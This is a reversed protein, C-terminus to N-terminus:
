PQPAESMQKKIVEPSPPVRLVEDALSPVKSPFSLPPGDDDDSSSSSSIDVLLNHTRTQTSLVSPEFSGLHNKSSHLLRKDRLTGRRLTAVRRRKSDRDRLEDMRQSRSHPDNRSPEPDRQKRKRSFGRDHISLEGRAAAAQLKTKREEVRISTPWRKKREALWAELIDPSDLTVSTGQIPVVKRISSSTTLHVFNPNSTL